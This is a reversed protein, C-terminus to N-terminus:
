ESGVYDKLVDNLRTQWGKGGDRFYDLVERDLRLTVQQKPNDSVPRGRARKHLAVLEPIVETAPRSQKLDDDTIERVEGDKEILPRRSM